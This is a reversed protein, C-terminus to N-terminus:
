NWYTFPLVPRHALVDRLGSLFIKHRYHRRLLAMADSSSATAAYELFPDRSAAPSDAAPEFLQPVDRREGPQIESLSAIEDPHRLLLETLFESRDFIPIAREVAASFRIVLQMASPVPALRASSDISTRRAIPSLQQSIALSHLKPSDTALRALIQNYSQERGGEVLPSLQLEPVSGSSQQQQHHIIRNYIESVTTM